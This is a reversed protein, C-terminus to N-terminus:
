RCVDCTVKDSNLVDDNLDFLVNSHQHKNQQAQSTLIRGMRQGFM